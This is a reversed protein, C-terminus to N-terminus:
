SGKVFLNSTHRKNVFLVDQLAISGSVVLSSDPSFQATRVWNTHGTLSAKFTANKSGADWIKVTKDDSATVLLKDQHFVFFCARSPRVTEDHIM